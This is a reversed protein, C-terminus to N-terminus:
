TKKTQKNTKTKTKELLFATKRGIFIIQWTGLAISYLINLKFVSLCFQFFDRLHSPKLCCAKKM